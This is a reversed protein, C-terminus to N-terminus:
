IRNTFHSYRFKHLFEKNVIDLRIRVATIIGSEISDISEGITYIVTYPSSVERTRLKIIRDNLEWYLFYREQGVRRISRKSANGYKKNLFYLLNDAIEETGFNNVVAVQMIKHDLTTRIYIKCFTFDGLTALQYVNNCGLQTYWIYSSPLNYIHQQNEIIRRFIIETRNNENLCALLVPDALSMEIYVQGKEFPFFERVNLNFDLYEVLLPSEGFVRPQQSQQSQTCSIISAMLCISVIIAKKSMTRKNKQNKGCLYVKKGVGGVCFGM